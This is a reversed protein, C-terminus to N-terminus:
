VIVVIVVIVTVIIIIYTCYNAECDNEWNTTYCDYYGQDYDKATTYLFLFDISNLSKYAFLTNLSAGAAVFLLFLNNLLWRNEDLSYGNLLRISSYDIGLM